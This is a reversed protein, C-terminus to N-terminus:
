SQLAEQMAVLYTCREVWGGAAKSTQPGKIHTPPPTFWGPSRGVRWDTALLACPKLLKSINAGGGRGSDSEWPGFRLM